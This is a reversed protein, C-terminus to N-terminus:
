SKIPIFEIGRDKIVWVAGRDRRGARLYLRPPKATRPM